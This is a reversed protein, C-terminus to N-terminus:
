SLDREEPTYGFRAHFRALERPEPRHGTFTEVYFPVRAMRDPVM